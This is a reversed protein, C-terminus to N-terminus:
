RALLDGVLEMHADTLFVYNISRDGPQRKRLRHGDFLWVSYGQQRLIQTLRYAASSEKDPDGSEEILWAPKFKEIIRAAGRVVQLEHGEADCKIFDVGRSDDSLLLSDLSRLSVDYATVVESGDDIIRSQYFNFGGSEYQPVAMRSRGDRESAACKLLTVNSLRLKRVCFSLLEFTEPIPEIAFVRGEPGVLESLLRTYWGVNAGVDVVRDSPQILRRVVVVDKDDSESFARVAKLYHMRKLRLLLSPPTYM